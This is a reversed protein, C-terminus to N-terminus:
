FYSLLLEIRVYTSCIEPDKLDDELKAMGEATTIKEQVREFVCDENSVTCSSADGGSQSKTPLLASSANPRNNVTELLAAVKAFEESVSKKIQDRISGVFSEMKNEITSEFEKWKTDLQDIDLIPVNHTELEIYESGDLEETVATTSRKPVTEIELDITKYENFDFPRAGGSTITQSPRRKTSPTSASPKLM